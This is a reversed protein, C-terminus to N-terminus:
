NCIRDKNSKSRAAEDARSSTAEESGSCPYQKWADGDTLKHASLPLIFTESLGGIEM